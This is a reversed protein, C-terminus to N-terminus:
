ILKAKNFSVKIFEVRDGEKIKSNIDISFGFDGNSASEVEDAMFQVVKIQGEGIQQDDRFIRALYDKKVEGKQIKIGVIKNQATTKFVELVKGEGEKSETRELELSEVLLKSLDDTLEYIIDYTLIQIKDKAAIRATGPLLNVKFGAILAGGGQALLVDSENIAGAGSGIISIINGRDTRIHELQSSIAQLSGQTDAKIVVNLNKIKQAKFKNVLDSFNAQLSAVRKVQSVRNEGALGRAKKEDEVVVLMDGVAPVGSFGTIRVPMSPGAEKIRKGNYDQLAKVKGYVGGAMFNNGVMLRGAKIIVTALQGVKSDHSVEIIIGRAKGTVRAKLEAMESTLMVLELLEDVGEGTKSSVGILPINGGWAETLLNHESLQQKIREINAGPKDIKTAAVIIPLNAAAALQIAEITQPKIGEEAAVVLIMVDTVKAGQARIASFAEHGPTDLLTVVKGKHNIQYSSIRQTIGGSEKEVVKTKRIYDLLSTKGHDVHGMVIVIPPREKIEGQEEDVEIVSNTKSIAVAEFGFDDAVIAATEFDINDNITVLVGDKLLRRIVETIPVDLLGALDSIRIVPPLELQKVEPVINENEEVM